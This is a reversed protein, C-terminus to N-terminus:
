EVVRPTPPTPDAGTAGPPSSLCGYYAPSPPITVPHESNFNDYFVVVDDTVNLLTIEDYLLGVNGQKYLLEIILKVTTNGSPTFEYDYPEFPQSAGPISETEDVFPTGLDSENTVTQRSEFPGVHGLNNGAIHVTFRYAKGALVNLADRVRIKMPSFADSPSTATGAGDLYLGNGPMIDWVGLGVLDLRREFPADQVIEWNILADYNLQAMPATGPPPNCSGSCIFSKLGSLSGLIEDQTTGYASLLFGASAANMAKVFPDGWARTAVVILFGGTSKFTEAILAPDTGSFEYDTFLILIKVGTTPFSDIVDLMADALNTTGTSSPIAAIASRAAGADTGWDIVRADGTSFSWASVDDKSYNITDCFDAAVSKSFALKTAYSGSFGQGMSKSNDILIAFHQHTDQCSGVVDLQAHAALDQWAASISTTGPAVGTAVGEQNVIAASDNSSAWTIGQAIEVEQGHARLIAKYVVNKGSQTLAYEPVLILDPFYACEDPHAARYAPDSCSSNTPPVPCTNM